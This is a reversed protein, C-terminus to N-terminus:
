PMVIIRRGEVTLHVAGTYNIKSLIKSINDYRSIAGTFNAAPRDGKYVVEVDYWRSLKRMVSTIDESTFIFKGNKWAVAENVDVKEVAIKGFAQSSAQDGPELVRLDNLRVSGELLTTKTTTEDSYASVNFHTGLVEIRQKGTEVVFPHLKDKAVQFYAEGDLKVSRIGSKHLTADYTLSSASNLWVATGDPLRLQYTEGKATSITNIKNAGVTPNQIEYIIQGDRTKSIVVGAEKALEGNVANSLAIKKGDALTLTAGERGPKIHADALSVQQRIIDNKTKNKYFLMGATILVAITAAFAFLRKYNLQINKIQQKNAQVNRWILSMEENMDDDIVNASHKAAYSNYWAEVAANEEETCTGNNYKELLALVKKNEM